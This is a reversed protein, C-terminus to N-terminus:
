ERRSRRVKLRGLGFGVHFDRKTEFGDFEEPVHKGRGTPVLVVVDRGCDFVVVERSSERPSTASPGRLGQLCAEPASSKVQQDSPKWSKVFFSPSLLAGSSTRSSLSSATQLTANFHNMWSPLVGLPAAMFSSISVKLSRSYCSRKDEGRMPDVDRGGERTDDNDGTDDDLQRRRRFVIRDEIAEYSDELM